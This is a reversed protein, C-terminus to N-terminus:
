RAASPFSGVCSDFGNRRSYKMCAIRFCATLFEGTPASFHYKRHSQGFYQPQYAGLSFSFFIRNEAKASFNKHSVFPDVVVLADRM